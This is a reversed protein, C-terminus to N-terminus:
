FTGGGVVWPENTGFIGFTEPWELLNASSIFAVRDGSQLNVDAVAWSTGNTATPYSDLWQGTPSLLVAYWGQSPPPCATLNVSGPGCLEASSGFEGFLTTDPFVEIGLISTTLSGLTWRAPVASTAFSV